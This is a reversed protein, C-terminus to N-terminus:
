LVRETAKHVASDDLVKLGRSPSPVSRPPPPPPVWLFLITPIASEGNM